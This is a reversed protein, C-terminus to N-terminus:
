ASTEDSASLRGFTQVSTEFLQRHWPTRCPRGSPLRPNASHYTQGLLIIRREERKTQNSKDNRNKKRNRSFTNGDFDVKKEKFGLAKKIRGPIPRPSNERERNRSRISLQKRTPFKFMKIIKKKTKIWPEGVRRWRQTVHVRVGTLIVYKHYFIKM